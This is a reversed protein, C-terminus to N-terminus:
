KKGFHNLIHKEKGACVESIQENSEERLARRPTWHVSFLISHPFYAQHSAPATDWGPSTPVLLIASSYAHSENLNVQQVVRCRYPSHICVPSVSRGHLVTTQCVPWNLPQVYLSGTFLEGYEIRDFDFGCSSLDPQATLLTASLLLSSCLLEAVSGDSQSRASHPQFRRQIQKHNRHQVRSCSSVTKKNKKTLAPVPHSRGNERHTWLNLESPINYILYFIARIVVLTVIYEFHMRITTTM